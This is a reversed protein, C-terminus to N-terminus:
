ENNLSVSSFISSTVNGVNNIHVINMRIDNKFINNIDDSGNFINNVLIKDKFLSASNMANSNNMISSNMFDKRDIAVSNM